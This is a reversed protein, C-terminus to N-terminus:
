RRAPEPTRTPLSVVELLPIGAAAFFTPNVSAYPATPQADGPPVPRDVLDFNNIDAPEDPPMSENVGAAIVGPQESLRSIARNWFAAAENPSGYRALPLSVRVYTVPRPDFGVDVRQLRVFSNILLAATALLPLALAFQATVLAGRVMQTSRGGGIERDGSRVAGSFDRRFLALAPYLGVIVGTILALAAAFRGRACRHGGRELAAGTAWGCDARAATGAGAAGATAGLASLVLSETVLLRAVRASSAGLVTRLVAERSRGTVRVLMLSAVNAVAILLVLAVAAGFLGLTQGAKGLMTERLSYPTMRATRDQFSSAWQPFIRESVGALDRTASEVTVGDKLRGIVRLNFPGRREPTPIRLSTWLEARVGALDRM